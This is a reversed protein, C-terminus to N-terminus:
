NALFSFYAKFSKMGSSIATLIYVFNLCPHTQNMNRCSDCYGRSRFSTLKHVTFIGKVLEIGNQFFLRGRGLFLLGIGGIIHSPFGMVASPLPSRINKKKHNNGKGEPLFSVGEDTIKTVGVLFSFM